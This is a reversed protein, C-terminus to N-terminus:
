ENDEDEEEDEEDDEIWEYYSFSGPGEVEEWRSHEKIKIKLRNSALDENTIEFWLMSTDFYIFDNDKFHQLRIINSLSDIKFDKVNKIIVSYWGQNDRETIIWDSLPWYKFVDNTWAIFKEKTM